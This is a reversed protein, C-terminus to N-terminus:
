KNSDFPDMGHLKFIYDVKRFGFLCTVIALDQTNWYRPNINNIWNIAWKRERNVLRKSCIFHVLGSLIVPISYKLIGEVEFVFILLILVCLLTSTLLQSISNRGVFPLTVSYFNTSVFKDAVDYKSM